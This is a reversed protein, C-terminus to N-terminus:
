GEILIPKKEPLKREEEKPFSLSLVGGKFKAKVDEQKISEGVYFSRQMSGAYCEQHTMKEKKDKEEENM